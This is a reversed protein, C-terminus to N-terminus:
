NKYFASYKSHDGKLWIEWLNEFQHDKAILEPELHCHYDIIPQDKAYVHYLELAQSNHLLFNDNIFPKM